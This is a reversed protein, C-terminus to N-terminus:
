YTTSSSPTSGEAPIETLLSRWATTLGMFQMPWRTGKVPQIRQGKNKVFCSYIM